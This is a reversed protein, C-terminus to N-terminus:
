PRRLRKIKEISVFVVRPNQATRSLRDQVRNDWRLALQALDSAGAQRSQKPTLDDWGLTQTATVRVLLRAPFSISVYPPAADSVVIEEGDLFDRARAGTAPWLFATQNRGEIRRLAVRGLAATFRETM